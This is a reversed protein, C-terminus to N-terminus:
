CILSPQHSSWTVSPDHGGCVITSLGVELVGGGVRLLYLGKFVHLTVCTTTM